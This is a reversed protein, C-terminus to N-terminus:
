CKSYGCSDCILCGEQHRLALGCTPCVGVVNFSPKAKEAQKAEVNNIRDIKNASSLKKLEVPDEEKTQTSFQSAEKKINIKQSQDRGRKELVRSIADSCSFVKKGKHWSPSPCRIGKLQEVVVKIDIGGRLALSVLRGVAELQSAACGGAKGMQTFVEFFNGNEDQNLTIYLNGCGTTVKTTTGLIVEPRPKPYPVFSSDEKPKKEKDKQSEKKDTTLVQGTRSGDRYVTLGKCGLKFALLYAEKVDELEASSPLNITKSVANDTSEQFAAQMKIHWFGSIDMATKFIRKARDPVEDMKQISEGSAIKKMLEQSYFGKRKAFYEFAPDVELLRDGDLVNRFYSLFYNPEIGSSTPGSIISITGTPAITTLTANRLRIGKKHWLSGEWVPFDGKEGALEISVDRAEKQIFGMIDRALDIAEQSDYPIELFGLMTAWGMIGLGIKRTKRTNDAIQPLPFKNADIVNDLFRVSTKVTEKLKQWDIEFKDNRKKLMKYLNISGLNCSEYPLLPQEGCDRSVFGNTIFSYTKPETLDYVERKGVSEISKIKEEFKDEYYNLKELKGVVGLHKDKIFGIKELFIKLSTRSINLEYLVGDLLYQKQEGQKNIYRFGLREKRSRDYIKSKIGLNLLIIQVDELLRLSKSTLRAYRTTKKEFCVLTGDASFLGRLFGVM